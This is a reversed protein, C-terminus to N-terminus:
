SNTTHNSHIQTADKVEKWTWGGATKRSGNIVKSIASKTINNDKAADTLSRYVRGDGRVVVKDSTKKILGTDHAHQTNESYTCWELNSVNPNQKNGDRHNVVPLNDPNPLFQEAVLIHVRKTCRNGDSWLTVKLYGNSDVSTNVYQDTLLSLIKGSKSIAYDHEFGKLPVFENKETYFDHM